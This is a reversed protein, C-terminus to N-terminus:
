FAKGNVVILRLCGIVLLKKLQRALNMINPM